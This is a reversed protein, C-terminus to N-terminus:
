TQVPRPTAALAAARHPDWRLAGTRPMIADAKAYGTRHWNTVTNVHVGCLEAFEKTSVLGDSEPPSPGKGIRPM